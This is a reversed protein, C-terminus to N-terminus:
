TPGTGSAYFRASLTMVGSSLFVTCLAKKVPVEWVVVGKVDLQGIPHAAARLGDAVVQDEVEIRKAFRHADCELVVEVDTVAARDLRQQRNGRGQAPIFALHWM